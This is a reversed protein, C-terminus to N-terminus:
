IQAKTNKLPKLALQPYIIYTGIVILFLISATCLPFSYNAFGHGLVLPMYAYAILAKLFICVTHKYKYDRISNILM